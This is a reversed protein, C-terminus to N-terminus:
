FSRGVEASAQYGSIDLSVLSPGANVEYESPVWEYGGSLAVFWGEAVNWRIGAQLGVGFLWDMESACDHWKALTESSGNSYFASVQEDRDVSGDVLSLSLYPTFTLSFREGTEFALRPGAWLEYIAAEVDFAVQNAVRYTSTTRRSSSRSSATVTEASAPLNPLLPGPGDFTGQYPAPPPVVGLLDYVYTSQATRSETTTERVVRVDQEFTTAEQTSDIGWLGLLGCAASVSWGGQVGLARELSLSIGAGDVEDDLALRNNRVTDVYTRDKSSRVDGLDQSRHFSLTDGGADYHSANQYGWFWTDGGFDITSPDIFVFGDDFSRNDYQSIDDTPPTLFAGSSGAPVAGAQVLAAAPAYTGGGINLDMGGRYAPGVSVRWGEAQSVSASLLLCFGILANTGVREV